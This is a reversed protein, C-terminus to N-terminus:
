DAASEGSKRKDDPRPPHHYYVRAEAERDWDFVGSYKQELPLHHTEQMLQNPPRFDAHEIRQDLWPDGSLTHPAVRCERLEDLVESFSPFGLVQKLAWPRGNERARKVCGDPFDKRLFRDLADALDLDPFKTLREDIAQVDEDLLANRRKLYNARVAHSNWTKLVQEGAERLLNKSLNKSLNKTNDERPVTETGDPSLGALVHSLQTDEPQVAVWEETDLQLVCGKAKLLYLHRYISNRSGLGTQQCYFSVEIPKQEKARLLAWCYLQALALNQLGKTVPNLLGIARVMRTDVFTTNM